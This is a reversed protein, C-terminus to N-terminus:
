YYCESFSSVTSALGPELLICVIILSQPSAVHLLHKHHGSLYFDELGAKFHLM